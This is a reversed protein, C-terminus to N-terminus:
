YTSLYDDVPVCRGIYVFPHHFAEAAERPNVNDVITLEGRDAVDLRLAGSVDDWLLSVTIGDSTRSDLERLM